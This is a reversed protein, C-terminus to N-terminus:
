EKLEIKNSELSGTFFKYKKLKEKQSPTFYNYVDNKVFLSLFVLYDRNKELVYSDQVINNKNTINRLNFVISFSKEEKPELLILNQMLYYNIEADLDNKLNHMKKWLRIKSNYNKNNLKINAKQKEFDSLDLYPTTSNTEILKNNIVDYVNITFSYFPYDKNWESQSVVYNDSFYAQFSKTDLPFAIKKNGENHVYVTAQQTKLNLKWKVNIKSFLNNSVIILFFLVPIKLIKYIM